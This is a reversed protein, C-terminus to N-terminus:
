VEKKGDFHELADKPTLKEVGHLLVEVLSLETEMTGELGESV